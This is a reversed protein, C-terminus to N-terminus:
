AGLSAPHPQSDHHLPCPYICLPTTAHTLTNHHSAVPLSQPQSMPDPNTLTDHHSPGHQLQYLLPAPHLGLCPTPTPPRVMVYPAPIRESCTRPFRSYKAFDFGIGIQHRLQLRPDSIALFNILRLPYCLLRKRSGGGIREDRGM